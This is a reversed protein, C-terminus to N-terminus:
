VEHGPDLEVTSTTNYTGIFVPQTTASEAAYILIDTNRPLDLDSFTVNAATAISSSSVILLFCFLFTLHNM